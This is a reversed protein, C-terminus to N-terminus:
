CMPAYNAFFRVFTYMTTLFTCLIIYMTVFIDSFKANKKYVTIVYVTLTCQKFNEVSSWLKEAMSIQSFQFKILNQM